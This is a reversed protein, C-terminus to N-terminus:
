PELLRLNTGAENTDRINISVPEGIPDYHSKSLSCSCAATKVGVARDVERAEQMLACYNCFIMTLVDKYNVESRSEGGLRARLAARQCPFYCIEAWGPCFTEACCLLLAHKVAFDQQILGATLYTDTVRCPRCGDNVVSLCADWDQCIGCLDEKFDHDLVRAQLSLVPKHGYVRDQYRKLALLGVLGFFFTRIAMCAATVLEEEEEEEVLEEEEEVTEPKEVLGPPKPAHESAALQPGHHAIFFYAAAHLVKM